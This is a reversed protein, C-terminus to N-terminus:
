NHSTDINTKVRVTLSGRAYECGVRHATVMWQMKCGQTIPVTGMRDQYDTHYLLEINSIWNLMTSTNPQDKM